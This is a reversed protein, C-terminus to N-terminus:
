DNIAPGPREHDLSQQDLSQQDLLGPNSVVAVTSGVVGGVALAVAVRILTAPTSAPVFPMWFVGIPGIAWGILLASAGLNAALRFVPPRRIPLLSATACALSGFALVLPIASTGSGPPDSLRIAITAACALASAVMLVATIMMRRLRVAGFFAGAAVLLSVFAPWPFMNPQHYLSGHIISKVGNVVIPIQWESVLGDSSTAPAEDTMWHIRHDHWAIVGGDGVQQWDPKAKGDLGDPLDTRGSRSDNIYTAASNLNREVTGDANIRLYPEGDYGPIAVRTGPDTRVELFADSGLVSVRAGHAEPEISGIVSRYNTPGVGDAGAVPTM